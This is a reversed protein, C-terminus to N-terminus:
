SKPPVLLRGQGGDVGIQQGTIWSAAPSLLFEALAATDEGQGLRGMPNTKALREAVAPASTLRSSMASTTLGPHICNVRINRDAYTAAASQALAGVAAKASAIAEHNPFGATAAVSGILVASAHVRHRVAQQVFLRLVNWASFFNADFAQKLEDESTLHLPKIIISGVCHALGEPAGFQAVGAEVALQASNRDTVDAPCILTPGSKLSGALEELKSGDRASLVLPIDARNLRRALAAGVAGSAGTIWVFGM